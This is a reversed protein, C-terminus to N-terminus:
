SRRGRKKEPLAHRFNRRESWDEASAPDLEWRDDDRKSIKEEGSLPEDDEFTVGLARGLEDVNDQDPTPTSGGVAEEGSGAEAESADVDGGALVPSRGQQAAAAHEFGDPAGAEVLPDTDRELDGLALVAEETLGALEPEDEIMARAAAREGATIREDM